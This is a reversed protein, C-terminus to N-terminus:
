STRRILVDYNLNRENEPFTGEILSSGAGRGVATWLTLLAPEHTAAQVTHTLTVTGLLIYYIVTQHKFRFHISTNLLHSPLRYHREIQKDQSLATLDGCYVFGGRGEKGTNRNAGVVANGTLKTSWM